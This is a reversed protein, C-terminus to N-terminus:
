SMWPFYGLLQGSIQIINMYQRAQEIISFSSASFLVPEWDSRELTDTPLKPVLYYKYDRAVGDTIGSFFYKVISLSRVPIELSLEFSPSLATDHGSLLVGGLTNRVSIREDQQFNLSLLFFDTYTSLTIASIPSKNDKVSIDFKIENLDM